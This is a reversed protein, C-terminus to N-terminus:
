QFVQFLQFLFVGNSFLYLGSGNYQSPLINKHVNIYPNVLAYIFIIIGNSYPLYITILYFLTIPLHEVIYFVLLLYIQFTCFTPIIPIFPVKLLLLCLPLGFTLFFQLFITQFISFRSCFM